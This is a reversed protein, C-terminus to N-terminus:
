KNKLTIEGEYKQWVNTNKCSCWHESMTGVKDFIDTGAFLCIGKNKSIFMVIKGCDKAEALFPFEINEVTKEENKLEVIIAM